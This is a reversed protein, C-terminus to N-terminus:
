IWRLSDPQSGSNLQSYIKEQARLKVDEQRWERPLSIMQKYSFLVVFM